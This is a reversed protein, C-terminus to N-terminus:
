APRACIAWVSWPLSTPSPEGAPVAMVQWADGSPSPGSSVVALLNSAQFGGGIVVKGEPAKAEASSFHAGPSMETLAEAMAVGDLGGFATGLVKIGEEELIARLLVCTEPEDDVILVGPRLRPVTM